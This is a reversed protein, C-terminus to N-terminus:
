EKNPNWRYTAAILPVKEANGPNSKQQLQGTMNKMKM